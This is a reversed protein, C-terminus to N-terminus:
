VTWRELSGNNRDSEHWCAGQYGENNKEELYFWQGGLCVWGTRMVGDPGFYYWHRNILEWKDKVLKNNIKYVWCGDSLQEWVGEDTEIVIVTHGKTKTVLIDGAVLQDAPCDVIKEFCRTEMLVDAENGTYIDSIRLGAYYCCLRVAESCDINVDETVQAPDYGVKAAAKFGSLRDDQGYGFHDNNCIALMAHALNDRMAPEKARLCVWGKSHQYYEQTSCEKGNQDGRKGNISGNEAIRASGILIM